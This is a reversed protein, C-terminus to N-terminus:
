SAVMKPTHEAYYADETAPNSPRPRDGAEALATLNTGFCRTDM